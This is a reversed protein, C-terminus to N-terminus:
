SHRVRRLVELLKSAVERWTPISMAKSNGRDGGSGLEEVLAQALSYPDLDVVRGIGREEIWRSAISGRTMVLRRGRALVENVLLPYSEGAHRTPMAVVDSADILAIKDEGSVYGLVRVRSGIGARGAMKLCKKLYRESGKGAIVLVADPVEKTVHAFASILLDLGKTSHIRGIYAVIRGDVNYKRRFVEAMNPLKLYEEAIGHPLVTAEVSYKEKLLRREYDNTVLAVDALDAMRQTIWRQYPRGFVKILPNYHHELYDVGIFYVAVPKGLMKADRCVRYTFYSNQSWCIVVDASELVGRPVRIPISLDPFHLRLAVVRYVHTGNIVEEGPRVGAGHRSTVVYVEHGLRAMGEALAKIAGEMGGVVPWYHHYVHVTKM